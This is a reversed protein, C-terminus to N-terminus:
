SPPMNLRKEVALLRNEFSGLIERISSHSISLDNHIKQHSEAYGYFATLLKTEIDRIFETLRQELAGLEKTLRQELAGLEKTLRQELAGLEGKSAETLRQELAALGDALDKRTAPQNGDDMAPAIM